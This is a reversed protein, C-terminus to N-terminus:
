VSGKCGCRSGTFRMACAEIGNLHSASCSGSGAPERAGAGHRPVGKTGTLPRRRQLGVGNRWGPVAALLVRMVQNKVDPLPRM